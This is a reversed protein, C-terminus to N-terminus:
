RPSIPQAAPTPPHTGRATAMLIALGVLSVILHLWEGHVLATVAELGFGLVFVVWVIYPGAERWSTPLIGESMTTKETSREPQEVGTATKQRLDSNYNARRASAAAAQLREGLTKSPDDPSPQSLLRRVNELVKRIPSDEPPWNGMPELEPRKPDPM